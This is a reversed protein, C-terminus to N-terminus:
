GSNKRREADLVVFSLVAFCIDFLTRSVKSYEALKADVVLLLDEWAEEMCHLTETAYRLLSSMHSFHLALHRLVQHQVRILGVDVQSPVSLIFFLTHYYILTFTDQKKAM